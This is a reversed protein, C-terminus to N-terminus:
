TLAAAQQLDLPSVGVKALVVHLARLARLADERTASATGSCEADLNGAAELVSCREEWLQSTESGAATVAALQKDELPSGFTTGKVYRLLNDEYGGSRFDAMREATMILVMIPYSGVGAGYKIQWWDDGDANANANANAM